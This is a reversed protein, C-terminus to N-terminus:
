PGPLPLLPRLTSPAWSLLSSLSVALYGILAVQSWPRRGPYRSPYRSFVTEWGQPYFTVSRRVSRGTFMDQRHESASHQVSGHRTWAQVRGDVPESTPGLGTVLMDQLLGSKRGREGSPGPKLRCWFSSLCLSGTLPRWTLGFASATGYFSHCDLSPWQWRGEAALRGLASAFELFLWFAFKFFVHVQLIFTSYIALVVALYDQILKVAGDFQTATSRTRRKLFPYKIVRDEEQFFTRAWETIGDRLAM